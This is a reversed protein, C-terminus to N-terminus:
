GNAVALVGNDTAAAARGEAIAAGPGAHVRKYDRPIVKVFARRDVLRRATRASRARRTACTTARADAARARHGDPEELPELDVM